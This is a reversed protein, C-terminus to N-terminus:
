GSTKIETHHMKLIDIINTYIEGNVKFEELDELTFWRCKDNIKTFDADNMLLSVYFFKYHYAHGELPPQEQKTVCFPKPELFVNTELHKKYHFCSDLKSDIGTKKKVIGIISDSPFEKEGITASPLMWKQHKKKRNFYLLYKGKHYIISGVAFKNYNIYFKPGKVFIIVIFLPLAIIALILIINYENKNLYNASLSALVGILYTIILTLLKDM